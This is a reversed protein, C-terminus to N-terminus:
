ARNCAATFRARQAGLTGFGHCSSPAKGGTPRLPEHPLYPAFPPRLSELGRGPGTLSQTM